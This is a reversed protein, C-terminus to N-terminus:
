LLSEVTMSEGHKTFKQTETNVVPGQSVSCRQYLNISASVESCPWFHCGFVKQGRKNM